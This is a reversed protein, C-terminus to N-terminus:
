HHVHKETVAEVCAGDLNSRKFYHTHLLRHALESGQKGLFKDYLRIIAPNEHSKRYPLERDEKYLGEGRRARMAFTSGKPQGGGGVCGGPCAMIEIFAYESQGTKEIQEKVKTLLTRANGLGHAVAVKVKMGNIDLEAEKIGAMGRVAEIDLNPLDKGTLMWYATRVAAEMVGGTAGFITAAGTYMGMLEDPKEDPLTKLDIDAAKLMRVLERTTLVYDVDQYGSDRMEPRRAEFKKATCPMISVSVIKSPDIGSEKAFYTKVLAGFMQQPSKCTSVYKALDPFFTEMFKIWGPSCSTILPLAGGNKIREVLENAEEMITLDAAFNTDFIVDFGLRRMAAYMKGVTVTGIEMGFEEGLTARISPAEQVVVVKDPDLLADWVLDIESRESLAGTPCFVTCQGCNVCASNGMGLSFFTDITADFGRDAITLASVTQIDNCVNVCRGCLICKNPDRVIAISTEDIPKKELVTPLGDTDVGLYNALSQLECHENAPCTPCTVDHNSLILQVLAKRIERLYKSNSTVKMGPAVPTCCSRKPTPSGEIEVVCVGCAGTPSLDAHYCLTPIHVGVKKAADLITADKDVEVEKGDIYLKVMEAM